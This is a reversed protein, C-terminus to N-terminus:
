LREDRAGIEGTDRDPQLLRGEGSEGPDRSPAPQGRNVGGAGTSGGLTFPEGCRDDGVQPDAAGGSREVGPHDGRAGRVGSVPCRVGGVLEAADPAADLALADERHAGARERPPTM